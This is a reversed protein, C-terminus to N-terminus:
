WTNWCMQRWARSALWKVSQRYFWDNISQHIGGINMSSEHVLCQWFWQSEATVALSLCQGWPYQKTIYSVSLCLVIIASPLPLLFFFLALYHPFITVPCLSAQVARVAHSPRTVCVCVCVRQDLLCCSRSAPTAVIGVIAVLRNTCPVQLLFSSLVNVSYSHRPPPNWLFSQLSPEIPALFAPLAWAEQALPLLYASTALTWVTHPLCAMIHFATLSRSPVALEYLCGGCWLYPPTIDHRVYLSM